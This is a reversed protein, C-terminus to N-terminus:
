HGKYDVHAAHLRGIQRREIVKVRVCRYLYFVPIWIAADEWGTSFQLAVRRFEETVLEAYPLSDAKLLKLLTGSVAM